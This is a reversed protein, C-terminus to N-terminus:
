AADVWKRRQGQLLNKIRRKLELNEKNKLRPDQEVAQRALVQAKRILDWDTILSGLRFPAVGSQRKGLVDGIGRLQLDAEAIKFGDQTEELIKLREWSESNKAQSVLICYSTHPGRGIRGRLQHLQALGFREANEIIMVSANPVDVGVEIVTTSVLVSIIGARFEEMVMEKEQPKVKGHLAKVSYPSLKKELMEVQKKVTKLVKEDGEEIAPYVIYVQRGQECQTRAFDWIKELAEESRLATIMKGRGKPMEDIVSVDLDGYLTLGLTRPIPTATMVLVHPSEGKARLRARQEVGFKHQEDIVILGLNEIKVKEQFLAHTGVWVQPKFFDGSQTKKNGTMLGITLGMGKFLHRLTLFHQNALIDTPAMFVATFGAEVAQLIALIAVLTKGSGVDGQLLRNMPHERNLDNSIEAFVRQQASTPTFQIQSLFQPVLRSSGPIAKGLSVKTKHRRLALLSQWVYFEDFALRQRAKEAQTLHDPFHLQWLNEQWNKGKSVIALWEKCNPDLQKLARFVTSRYVRQSLGQTLSYIPVIRELHVQKEADHYIPEWEPMDLIWRNRTRKLKGFVYLEVSKDQWQKVLYPVNFWRLQLGAAAPNYTSATALVEIISRGGRLRRLKVSQFRVPLAIWQGEEWPRSQSSQSQTRRDEYRRPKTFFLDEVTFIDLAAFLESRTAGVFPLQILPTHLTDFSLEV